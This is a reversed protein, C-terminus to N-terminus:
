GEGKKRVYEEKCNDLWSDLWWVDAEEAKSMLFTWFDDFEEQSTIRLIKEKEESVDEEKREIVQFAGSAEDYRAQTVTPGAVLSIYGGMMFPLGHENIKREIGQVAKRTM